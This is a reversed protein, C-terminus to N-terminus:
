SGSDGTKRSALTKEWEDEVVKYLNMTAQADEVSSHGSRGMQIDRNFIAKTLRKLSACGKEEFGARVNLLPIRSTDRTLDAPHSYQLVRFDSHIAHGIVVKGALIKLIERRAQLFPTANRLNHPRVGSWRTRYNSVPATPKIFKDYVVDGEYSVISCRALSCVSGRPGTGVMECDIALYKSPVGSIARSSLETSKTNALTSPQQRSSSSSPKNFRGAHSLVRDLVSGHDFSRQPFPVTQESTHLVTTKKRGGPIPRSSLQTSKTNALTSPQQRSSSSSPKNFRGAHSLVTMKKRKNFRNGLKTKQKRCPKVESMNVTITDEM